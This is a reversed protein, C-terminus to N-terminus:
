LKQYKKELRRLLIWMRILQCGMLVLVAASGWWGAVYITRVLGTAATRNLRSLNILMIISAPICLVAAARLVRRYKAVQSERDSM